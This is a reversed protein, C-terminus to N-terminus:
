PRHHTKSWETHAVWSVHALNYWRSTVLTNGGASSEYAVQECSGRCGRPLHDGVAVSRRHLGKLAASVLIFM